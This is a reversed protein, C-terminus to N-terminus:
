HLDAHWLLEEVVVRFRIPVKDLLEGILPAERIIFIMQLLDIRIKPGQDDPRIRVTLRSDRSTRDGGGPTGVEAAGASQLM